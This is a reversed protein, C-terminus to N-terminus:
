LIQVVDLCLKFMTPEGYFKLRPKSIQALVCNSGTISHEAHRNLNSLNTRLTLFIVEFIRQKDRETGNEYLEVVLM